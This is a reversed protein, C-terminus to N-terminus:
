CKRSKTLLPQEMLGHYAETNKLETFLLDAYKRFHDRDYCLLTVWYKPFVFHSVDSMQWVLVNEDTIKLRSCATDIEFSDSGIQFDFAWFLNVDKKYTM